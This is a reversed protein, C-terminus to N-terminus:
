KEKAKKKGVVKSVIAHEKRPLLGSQLCDTCGKGECAPCVGAPERDKLHKLTKELDNMIQGIADTFEPVSYFPLRKKRRHMGDCLKAERLKGDIMGLLDIAEQRWPDMYADRTRKPLEVGFSDVPGADPVPPPPPNEAQDERVKKREQSNLDKCAPCGQVEGLTRCRNCLIKAPLEVRKKQPKHTGNAAYTKGDKGTVTTEPTRPHVGAAEITKHVVSPSIKEEEAITRISKGNQRKELIRESREMRRMAIQEPTEHRRNDNAVQVFQAPDLKSPLTWFNPEIDLERCARYLQWGDLIQGEHLTVRRHGLAGMDKVGALFHEWQIGDLDDYEASLPHRKYEPIM